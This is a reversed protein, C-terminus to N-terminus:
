PCKKVRCHGATRSPERSPERSNNGYQLQSIASLGLGADASQRRTEDHSVIVTSPGLLSNGFTHDSHHHTNVLVEPEGHAVSAVAERLLRTRRETAATDVVAARGDSVLM